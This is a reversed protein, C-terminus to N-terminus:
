IAPTRCARLLLAARTRWLTVTGSGDTRVLERSAGSNPARVGLALYHGNLVGADLAGGVNSVGIIGINM